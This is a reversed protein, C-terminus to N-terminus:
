LINTNNHINNYISTDYDGKINVIYYELLTHQNKNYM